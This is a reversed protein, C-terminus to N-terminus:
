TTRRLLRGQLLGAVALLALIGVAVYHPAEPKVVAFVAYFALFTFNSAHVFSRAAPPSGPTQLVALNLGALFAFAFGHQAFVLSETSISHFLFVAAAFTLAAHVFVLVAAARLLIRGM